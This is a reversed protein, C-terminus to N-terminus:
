KWLSIGPLIPPFQHLRRRASQLFPEPYYMGSQFSVPVCNGDARHPSLTIPFVDCRLPAAPSRSSAAIRWSCPYSQVRPPDNDKPSTGSRDPRRTDVNLDLPYFLQIHDLGHLLRDPVTLSHLITHWCQEVPSVPFRPKHSHPQRVPQLEISCRSFSVFLLM